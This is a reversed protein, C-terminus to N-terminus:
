AMSSSAAMAAYSLRFPRRCVRHPEIEQNTKLEGPHAILFLLIDIARSGLSVVAEGRKLSRRAPVISFPAFHLEQELGV